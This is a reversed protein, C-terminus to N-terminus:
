SKKNKNAPVENTDSETTMKEWFNNIEAENAQYFCYLKHAIYGGIVTNVIEKPMQCYGVICGIAIAIHHTSTQNAAQTHSPLAGCSFLIMLIVIRMSKAKPLHIM